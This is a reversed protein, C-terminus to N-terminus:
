VKEEIQISNVFNLDKIDLLYNDKYINNLHDRLKAWIAIDDKIWSSVRLILELYFYNNKYESNLITNVKEIFKPKDSFMLAALTEEKVKLKDFIYKNEIIKFALNVDNIIDPNTVEYRHNNRSYSFIKYEGLTFSTTKDPNLKHLEFVKKTFYFSDVIPDIPQTGFNDHEISLLIIQNTELNSRTKDCEVILHKELNFHYISEGKEKKLYYNRGYYRDIYIEDIKM